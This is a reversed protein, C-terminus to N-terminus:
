QKPSQQRFSLRKLASLRQEIMEEQYRYAMEAGMPVLPSLSARRCRISLRYFEGILADLSDRLDDSMNGQWEEIDAATLDERLFEPIRSELNVRGADLRWLRFRHLINMINFLFSVGMVLYVAQDPSILDSLWPLYRDLLSPGGAHYFEAAVSKLEKQSNAAPSRNEEIFSPFVESVLKLFKIVEGRAACSNAVLLTPLAVVILESAPLRRLLDFQGQPIAMVSVGSLRRAVGRAEPLSGIELAPNRATEQFLPSQASQVLVAIDLENRLVGQISEVSSLEIQQVPLKELEELKLLEGVFARTGSGAAGIGIRRGALDAFASIAEGRRTVLAVVEQNPLQGLYEIDPNAWHLGGQVFAFKESCGQEMSAQLRRLNEVSGASTLARLDGAGAASKEELHQGLQFYAGGDEGTLLGGRLHEYGWHVDVLSLLSFLLVLPLAWLLWGFRRESRASAERDYRKGLLHSM